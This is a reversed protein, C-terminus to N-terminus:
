PDVEMAKISAHIISQLSTAESSLKALFVSNGHTMDDSKLLQCVRDIKGQMRQEVITKLARRDREHTHLRQRLSEVEASSSPSRGSGGIQKANSGGRSVATQLEQIIRQQEEFKRDWTKERSQLDKLLQREASSAIEQGEHPVPVVDDLLTAMAGGCRVREELNHIRQWLRSAEARQAPTCHLAERLHYVDFRLRDVERALLSREEADKQSEVQVEKLLAADAKRQSAIREQLIRRQETAEVGDLRSKEELLRTYNVSSRLQLTLASIKSILEGHRTAYADDAIAKARQELVQQLTADSARPSSRGDNNSVPAPRDISSESGRDPTGRRRPSEYGGQLVLLEVLLEEASCVKSPRYFSRYRQGTADGETAPIRLQDVYNRAQVESMRGVTNPNVVSRLPPVSSAPGQSSQRQQLELQEELQQVHDDYADMEEQLLLITEDRDNLRTTLSLMVDRQKLLLHKYRDVQEKDEAVAQRERDLDLLRAAYEDSTHADGGDAVLSEMERIRQELEQRTRQEKEYAQSSRQLAELAAERDEVARRHDEQLESMRAQTGDGTSSGGPSGEQAQHRLQQRLRQLEQEYARLLTTQNMSENVVANNQINKARNAFTLTSLSEAYSELAPSICAIITTRCNGGLSDRLASTLVSNRFPIHRPVRKRGGSGTSKTALAAIVNGLEHLSKNINKTEELRQGTVGALRIKESGALDVIHLKGFRYSLPNAEDGEMAEVVMTFIAHSRSSLESLRTASTARLMTGKEILEYVDEPSRVVWESLGEVYVGRQPTHRVALSRSPHAAAAPPDLLDSIVEKYIQMYSARVLFTTAGTAQKSSVYNFIDEVARPIIGRDQETTFGEMTYTKGTGTQGYAILTANYGELVSLVAPRASRVYLEEQTVTAGYVDDFAFSQRSYVAGRGDETELADCLTIRNSHEPSLQVVDVYPTYGNLERPLPPRVRIVVNLNERANTADEGTYLNADDFHEPPSASPQSASQVPESRHSTAHSGNEGVSDSSGSGWAATLRSNLGQQRLQTAGSTRSFHM